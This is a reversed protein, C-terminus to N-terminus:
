QITFNVKIVSEQLSTLQVSDVLLPSKIIVVEFLGAEKVLM